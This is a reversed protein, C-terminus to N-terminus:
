GQRGNIDQSDEDESESKIKEEYAKKNVIFQDILVEDEKRPWCYFNLHHKLAM